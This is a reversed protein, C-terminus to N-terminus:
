TLMEIIGKQKSTKDLEFADLLQEEQGGSLNGTFLERKTGKLADM